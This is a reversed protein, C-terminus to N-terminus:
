IGELLTLPPNAQEEIWDQNGVRRLRFRGPPLALEVPQRPAALPGPLGEVEVGSLAGLDGDQFLIRALSKPEPVRALRQEGSSDGGVVFPAFDTEHAAPTGVLKMARGLSETTVQWLNGVQTAAYHELCDLLVRCFRSTEGPIGWAKRNVATSYVIPAVKDRATGPRNTLLVSYGERPIEMYADPANRCADVLFVQTEAKCAKMANYFRSFNVARAWFESASDGFDQLLLYTEGADWVGHGCFSFLAVNQPHGDCALKWANTEARVVNLTASGPPGGIATRVTGLPRDLRDQNTLLWDRLAEASPQPSSLRPMIPAEAHYSASPVDPAAAGPAPFYEYDGVGILLAHVAPQDAPLGADFVLPV